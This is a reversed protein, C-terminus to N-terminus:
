QLRFLGAALTIVQSARLITPTLVIVTSQYYNFLSQEQISFGGEPGIFLNINEYSAQEKAFFLPSLPTGSSDFIYCRQQSKEKLIDTLPRPLHLCAGKFNKSQEAAAIIQKQLRKHLQEDVSQLSSKDAKYLQIEQVGVEVANYIAEELNDKKLLPIHL